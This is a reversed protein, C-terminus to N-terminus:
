VGDNGITRKREMIFLANSFFNMKQSVKTACIKILNQTYTPIRTPEDEMLVQIENKEWSPLRGVLM